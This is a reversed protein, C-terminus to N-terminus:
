AHVPPAAVTVEAEGAIGTPEAVLLGEERMLEIHAEIGERM